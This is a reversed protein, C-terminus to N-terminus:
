LPSLNLKQLKRGKEGHLLLKNDAITVLFMPKRWEFSSREQLARNQHPQKLRSFARGHDHHSEQTSPDETLPGEPQQKFCGPKQMAM